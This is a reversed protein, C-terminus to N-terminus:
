TILILRNENHFFFLMLERGNVGTLGPLINFSSSSARLRGTSTKASFIPRSLNVNSSSNFPFSIKLESIALEKSLAKPM